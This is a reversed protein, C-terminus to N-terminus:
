PGAWSIRPWGRSTAGRRTCRPASKGGWAGALKEIQDPDLPFRRGARLNELSLPPPLQHKRTATVTGLNRSPPDRVARTQDLERPLCTSPSAFEAWDM